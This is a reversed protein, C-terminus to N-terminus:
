WDGAVYHLTSAYAIGDFGCGLPCTGDLRPWRRRIEHTSLSRAADADFHVGHDCRVQSTPPEDQAVLKRAIEREAIATFHRGCSERVNEILRIIGFAAPVRCAFAHDGQEYRKFAEDPVGARKMGEYYCVAATGCRYIKGDARLISDHSWEEMWADTEYLAADFDSHQSQYAYARAREVALRELTWETHVLSYDIEVPWSAVVVAKVDYFNDRTFVYFAQGLYDVRFLGIPLEVSKSTHHGAVRVPAGVLHSIALLDKIQRPLGARWLLNPEPNAEAAWVEPASAAEWVAHTPQIVSANM